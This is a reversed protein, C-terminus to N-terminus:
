RRMAMLRRMRAIEARQDADVDSVFRNISSEQAAGPVTVLNAVMTLAGGHHRIMGDLFLRDFRAGRAARLAAMEVSTLMGPMSAGGHMDHGAHATMDHVVPTATTDAGDGHTRLWRQMMAIEDRQSVAIREALLQVQADRSRVAVLATMEVAQQHHGIMERMFRRDAATITPSANPTTQAQVSTVGALLMVGCAAALRRILRLRRHEIVSFKGPDSYSRCRSHWPV